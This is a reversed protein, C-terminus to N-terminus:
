NNDIAKGKRTKALPKTTKAPMMPEKAENASANKNPGQNWKPANPTTYGRVVGKRKLQKEVKIAMHVMDVIEMYNQLKVINAIECNLGALFRAMTVERDEQLDARMAVEMEKYYDAKMKAWTNIPRKGNWRRSTTLQDWWIMTYDSFDIAVLKVKKSESYNYCEFVLEIKKEWELYAKPNSKGQFPPIAMKINKLDDDVRDREKNEGDVKLLGKANAERRSKTSRKKYLSLSEISYVNWKECSPKFILIRCM